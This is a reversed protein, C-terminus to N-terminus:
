PSVRRWADPDVRRTKCASCGMAPNDGSGPPSGTPDSETAYVASCNPCAWLDHDSM